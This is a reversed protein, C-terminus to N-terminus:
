KTAISHPVTLTVEFGPMLRETTVSANVQRALTEIIRTGLGTSSDGVAAPGDGPDSVCVSFSNTGARLTVRITGRDRVLTSHRVANTILESVILGLPIGVDTRIILPDAEVVMSYAQDPNSSATGIDHCLDVLYRDLALTGVDDYKHLQQHVTAIAVVRAAADHFQSAAAGATRAQLQLIGSVILLSNKIRHDVEKLLLDKQRGSEELARKAQELEQREKLDRLADLEAFLRTGMECHGATADNLLLEALDEHEQLLAKVDDELALEPHM